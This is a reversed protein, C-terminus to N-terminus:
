TPALGGDAFMANIMSRAALIRERWRERQHRALCMVFPASGYPPALRTISIRVDDGEFSASIEASGISDSLNQQSLVYDSRSPFLVFAVLENASLLGIEIAEDGRHLSLQFAPEDWNGSADFVHRQDIALLTLDDAYLFRIYMGILSGPEVAM